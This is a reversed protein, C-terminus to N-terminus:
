TRRDHDRRSAGAEGTPGRAWPPAAICAARPGTGDPAGRRCHLRPARLLTAGDPARFGASVIPAHGLDALEVGRRAIGDGLRQALRHAVGNTRHRRALCVGTSRGARSGLFLRGRISCLRRRPPTEGDRALRSLLDRGGPPRSRCGATLLTGRSVRAQKPVCARKCWCRHPRHLLPVDRPGALGPQLIKLVSLPRRPATGSRLPGGVIRIWWLTRLRPSASFGFRGPDNM